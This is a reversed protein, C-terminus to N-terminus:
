KANNLDKVTVQPQGDAIINTGQTSGNSGSIVAEPAIMGNANADAAIPSTGQASGNAM